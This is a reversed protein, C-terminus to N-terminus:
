LSFYRVSSIQNFNLAEVETCYIKLSLLLIPSNPETNLHTQQEKLLGANSEWCGCRTDDGLCVALAEPVTTQLELELPDVPM